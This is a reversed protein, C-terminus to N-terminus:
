RTAPRSRRRRGRRPARHGRRGDPMRRGGRRRPVTLRRRPSWRPWRPPSARGGRSRRRRSSSCRWRASAPAPATEAAGDARSARRAPHHPCRGGRVEPRALIARLPALNTPLGAIQFEDLAACTRELASAFSGTSNSDGILKAFMPDFQPPPAYGLYGCSDVRVGRGPRSRTPPSRAPAPRSSARRCRSAARRPRHRVPPRHGLERWGSAPPSASSRRSSTSAPSRSPSPTSSRSARTASSSFTSRRPGPRGPVRGHGANVTAPRGPSGCRTTSSASACSTTWTRAGARDRCRRTACSSRATASTSTLRDRRAPRGPDAGRHPAAARDAERRLGLRRRVRGRGRAPLPSPPRWRPAQRRRAAHRSRRRGGRGEAHGSLRARRRGRRAAEASALATGSGPIIPVGQAARRARPGAVKDGFLALTEPAPRRVGAGRRPMPARVRPERLPLRLRSPRLRLRDRPGGRDLRRHRSLGEGSRRGAGIQRTETTVRTHLSLADAPAHVSVSEVGLASAARAIRIAIEGRNAILVRKLAM